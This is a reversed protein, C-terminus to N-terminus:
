HKLVLSDENQHLSPYSELMFYMIVNIENTIVIVYIDLLFLWETIDDVIENVHVTDYM